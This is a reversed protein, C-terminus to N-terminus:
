QWKLRRGDEDYTFTFTDNRERPPDFDEPRTNVNFHINYYMRGNIPHDHITLTGSRIVGNVISQVQFNGNRIQSQYQRVDHFSADCYDKLRNLFEEKNM